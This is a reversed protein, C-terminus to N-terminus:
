QLRSARPKALDEDDEDDYEGLVNRAAERQGIFLLGEDPKVRFVRRAVTGLLCGANAVIV